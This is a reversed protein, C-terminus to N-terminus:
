KAASWDIALANNSVESVEYGANILLPRLEAFVRSTLGPVNYDDIGISWPVVVTCYHGREAEREIYERLKVMANAAIERYDRAANTKDALLRLRSAPSPKSIPKSWLGLM